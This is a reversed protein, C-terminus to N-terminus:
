GVPRAVVARLIQKLEVIDRCRLLSCEHVLQLVSRIFATFLGSYFLVFQASVSLARFAWRAASNFVM